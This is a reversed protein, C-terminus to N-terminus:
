AMGGDAAGKVLVICPIHHSQGAALQVTVTDYVTGGDDVATIHVEGAQDSKNLLRVFSQLFSDTAPLM